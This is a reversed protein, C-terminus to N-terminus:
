FLKASVLALELALLADLFVRDSKKGFLKAPAAAGPRAIKGDTMWSLAALQEINLFCPPAASQKM